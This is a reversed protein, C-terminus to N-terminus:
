KMLVPNSVMVLHDYWTGKTGVLALAFEADLAPVPVDFGNTEETTGDSYTVTDVTPMLIAAGEKAADEASGPFLNVIKKSALSIHITMVGNTVTLVGKGNSAENVHFMGSDTTFDASYVGDALAATPVDTSVPESTPSAIAATETAAAEGASPAAVLPACGVLTMLAIAVWLLITAKANHIRRM